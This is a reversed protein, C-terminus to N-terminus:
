VFPNEIRTHAFGITECYLTREQLFLQMWLATQSALKTKISNRFLSQSYFSLLFWGCGNIVIISDWYKKCCRDILRMDFPFFSDNLLTCLCSNTLWSACPMKNHSETSRQSNHDNLASMLEASCGHMWESVIECLGGSLCVKWQM